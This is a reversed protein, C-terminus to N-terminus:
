SLELEESSKAVSAAFGEIRARNSVRKAVKKEGCNFLNKVWDVFERLLEDVM